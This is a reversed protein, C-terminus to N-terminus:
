CEIPQMFYESGVELKLVLAVFWKQNAFGGAFKLPRAREDGGPVPFLAGEKYAPVKKGKSREPWALDAERHRFFVAFAATANRM